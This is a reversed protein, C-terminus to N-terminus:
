AALRWDRRGDQWAKVESERWRVARTTVKEPAPFSGAAVHRYITVKSLGTAAEVDQRKLFRDIQM